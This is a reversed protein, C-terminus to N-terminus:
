TFVQLTKLIHNWFTTWFIAIKLAVKWIITEQTGLWHKIMDLDILPVVITKDELGIGYCSFWCETPLISYLAHIFFNLRSNNIENSGPRIIYASRIYSMKFIDLIYILRRIYM